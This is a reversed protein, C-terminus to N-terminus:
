LCDIWSLSITQSWLGTPPDDLFLNKELDILRCIVIKPQLIKIQVRIHFRLLIHFLIIHFRLPINFARLWLM